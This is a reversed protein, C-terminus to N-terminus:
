GARCRSGRPRSRCGVPLGGAASRRGRRGRRPRARRPRRRRPRRVRHSRHGAVREGDDGLGGLATGQVHVEGLLGGLVGRAEGAVPERRGAQEGGLAHEPLGRGRDVGGVQGVGVDRQEAAGAGPHAQARGGLAVEGVADARGAREVVRARREREAAVLVGDDVRDLLGPRQLHVLPEGGAFAAPEARGLEEGRQGVVGGSPLGSAPVSATPAGASRTATRSSETRVAPASGAWTRYAASRPRRRCPAPRRGDRPRPRRGGARRRRRAAPTPSRPGGIVCVTPPGRVSRVIHTFWLLHAHALQHRPDTLEAGEVGREPVKASAATTTSSPRTAQTPGARSAGAASRRISTSPAATTGPKTSVWAWRTKAPSREASNAARM